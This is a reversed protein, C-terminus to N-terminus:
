GSNGSAGTSASAAKYGLSTCDSVITNLDSVAQNSQSQLDNNFSSVDSNLQDFQAPTGVDSTVTPIPSADSAGHGVTSMLSQDAEASDCTAQFALQGAPDVYDSGSSANHSNPALLAVLIIGPLLIGLFGLIIGATAMGRGKQHGKSDRVQVRAIFGFIIALISGIGLTVIGLVLSAVAFPNTRPPPASEQSAPPPPPPPIKTGCVHCYAAVSQVAHGRPCNVEVMGWAGGRRGGLIRSTATPSMSQILNSQVLLPHESLLGTAFAMRHRLCTPVAPRLKPGPPDVGSRGDIDAMRSLAPCRTTLASSPWPAAPSSSYRM